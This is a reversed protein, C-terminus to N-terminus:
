AEAGEPEPILGLQQMAALNDSYSYLCRVRGGEMRWVECFRVEIRRGTPPVESGDPMPLPATHAGRYVCENTVGEEGALQRVVEVTGDPFPAKHFAMMERFGERGRFSLGDPYLEIEADESIYELVRDFDHDNFLEYIKRALAANEEASMTKKERRTNTAETL